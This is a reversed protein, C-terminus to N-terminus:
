VEGVRSIELVPKALLETELARRKPHVDAGAALGCRIVLLAPRRSPRRSRRAPSFARLHTTLRNFFRSNPKYQCGMAGLSYLAASTHSTACNCGNTRFDHSFSNGRM